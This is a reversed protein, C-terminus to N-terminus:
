QFFRPFASCSLLILALQSQFPFRVFVPPRQLSGFTFVSVLSHALSISDLRGHPCNWVRSSFPSARSVPRSLSLSLFSSLLSIMFANVKIRNVTGNTPVTPATEPDTAAGVLLFAVTRRKAGSVCLLGM